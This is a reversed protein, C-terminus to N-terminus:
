ADVEAPAEGMLRSKVARAADVPVSYGEGWHTTIVDGLGAARLARRVTCVYTDIIKANPAEDVRDTIVDLLRAKTAVVGPRDLMHLLILSGDRHYFKPYAAKLAGHLGDLRLSIREDDYYAKYAELAERLQANEVELRAARERDTELHHATM